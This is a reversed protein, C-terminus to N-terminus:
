KQVNAFKKASINKRDYGYAVARDEAEWKTHSVTTFLFQKLHYVNFVYQREVM